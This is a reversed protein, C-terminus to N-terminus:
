IVVGTTKSTSTLVGSGDSTDNITDDTYNHTHIEYNALRTELSNVKSQLSMITAELEQTFVATTNILINANAPNFKTHSQENTRMVAGIAQKYSLM